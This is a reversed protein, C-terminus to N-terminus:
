QSESLAFPDATPCDALLCCEIPMAAQLDELLVMPHVLLAQWADQWSEADPHKLRQLLLAHVADYWLGHVALLNPKEDATAHTLATQLADDAVQRVIVGGVQKTSQNQMLATNFQECELSVEWRYWQGAELAPADDPLTYLSIGPGEIEGFNATYLIEDSGEYKLTFTAKTAVEAVYIGFTPRALLTAGWNTQTPQVATLGGCFGNRSGADRTNAPAGRNPPNYQLALGPLGLSVVTSLITVSSILLTQSFSKTLYSRRSM